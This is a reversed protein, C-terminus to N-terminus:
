GSGKMGGAHEHERTGAAVFRDTLETPTLGAARAKPEVERRVEDVFGLVAERSNPLNRIFDRTDNNMM